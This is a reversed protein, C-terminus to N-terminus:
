SLPEYKERMQEFLEKSVFACKKDEYTGYIFHVTRKDILRPFDKNYSIFSLLVNQSQKALLSKEKTFIKETRPLLSHVFIHVRDLSQSRFFEDISNKM